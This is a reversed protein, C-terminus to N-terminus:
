SVEMASLRFEHEAKSGIKDQLVIERSELMGENRLRIATRQVTDLRTVKFRYDMQIKLEHASMWMRETNLIDVIRSPTRGPHLSM